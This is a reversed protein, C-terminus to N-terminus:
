GVEYARDEVFNVDRGVRTAAALKLEKRGLEYIRVHERCPPQLQNCHGRRKGVHRAKRAPQASLDKFVPGPRLREGDTDRKKSRWRVRWVRVHRRGHAAAPAAGAGTGVSGANVEGRQADKRDLADAAVGVPALAADSGAHRWRGFARSGRRGARLSAGRSIVGRRHRLPQGRNHREGRLQALLLARSRPERQEDEARRLLARPVNRARQTRRAARTTACSAVLALAGRCAHRPANLIGGLSVRAAGKADARVHFGHKKPANRVMCCLQSM